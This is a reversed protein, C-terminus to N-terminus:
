ASSKGSFAASSVVDPTQVRLSTIIGHISVTSPQGRVVGTDNSQCIGLCGGSHDVSAPRDGAIMLPTAGTECWRTRRSARTRENGALCRACVSQTQRRCRSDSLQADRLRFPLRGIRFVRIVHRSANCVLCEPVAGSLPYGCASAGGIEQLPGARCRPWAPRTAAVARGIPAAFAFRM